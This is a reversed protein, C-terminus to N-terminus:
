NNKDKKYKSELNKIEDSNNTRIIVDENILTTRQYKAKLKDIKNKDLQFEHKLIGSWDTTKRHNPYRYYITNNGIRYKSAKDIKQVLELKLQKLKLEIAEKEIKLKILEKILDNVM